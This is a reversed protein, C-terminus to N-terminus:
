ELSIPYYLKNYKYQRTYWYTLMKEPARLCIIRVQKLIESRHILAQQQKQELEKKERCFATRQVRVIREFERREREIEIAQMIRKNNVQEERERQLIRQAELKKLAEEKEKRRWDREVEEQVRAANIEDIQAQFNIAAIFKM